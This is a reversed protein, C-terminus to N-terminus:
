WDSTCPWQGSIIEEIWSAGSAAGQMKKRVWSVLSRNEEEEGHFATYAGAPSKGMIMELVVVGYSYVDVKSTIPLNLVWEPAM